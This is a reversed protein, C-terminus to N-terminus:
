KVHGSTNKLATAAFLQSVGILSVGDVELIQDNMQIRCVFLLLHLFRQTSELGWCVSMACSLSPSSCRGDKDAAGGGIITKIFIGLKEMGKDAGVGMGIISIGLGDNGTLFVSSKGEGWRDCSSCFVSSYFCAIVRM